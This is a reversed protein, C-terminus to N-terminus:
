FVRRSFWFSLFFSNLGLMTKASLECWFGLFGLRLGVYSTLLGFFRGFDSRLSVQAKRSNCHEAKSQFDRALGFSFVFCSVFPLPGWQDFFDRCVFVDLGM